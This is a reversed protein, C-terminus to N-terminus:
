VRVGGFSKFTNVVFDLFRIDCTESWGDKMDTSSLYNTVKKKIENEAAYCENSDSFSFVYINIVDLSTSSSIESLRRNVNKAVGYKICLSNEGDKILHVYANDCGNKSCSRCGKGAMHDNVRQEFVGHIPCIIKIKVKNSKVRSPMLSYDYKDGHIRRFEDVRQSKTKRQKISSSVRGCELCRCGNLFSSITMEHPGHIPCKLVLKSTRSTISSTDIEYMGSDQKLVLDVYYSSTNKKKDQACRKCGFLSKYHQTMSQKFYGHIPCFILSESTIYGDPDVESYSYKYEFKNLCMQILDSNKKRM